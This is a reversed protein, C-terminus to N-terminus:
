PPFDLNGPSNNGSGGVLDLHPRRSLAAGNAASTVQRAVSPSRSCHKASTM